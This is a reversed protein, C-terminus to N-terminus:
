QLTQHAQIPYPLSNRYLYLESMQQVSIIHFRRSQFIQKAMAESMIAPNFSLAMFLTMMCLVNIGIQETKKM